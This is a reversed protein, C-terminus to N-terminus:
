QNQKEWPDQSICISLLYKSIDALYIYKHVFPM